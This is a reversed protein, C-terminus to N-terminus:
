GVFRAERLLPEVAPVAGTRRQCTRTFGATEAFKRGAAPTQGNM